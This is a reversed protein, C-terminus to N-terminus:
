RGGAYLMQYNQKLSSGYGGALILYRFDSDTLPSSNPYKTMFTCNFYKCKRSKIVLVKTYLQKTYM